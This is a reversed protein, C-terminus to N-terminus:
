IIPTMIEMFIILDNYIDNRWIELIIDAVVGLALFVVSIIIGALSLKKRAVGEKKANNFGIISCILGALPVLFSLIFGILGIKNTKDVGDNQEPVYQGNYPQGNYPQGNYPQGNYATGQPANLYGVQVGCHPCVVAEDSLEKGCNRCFM